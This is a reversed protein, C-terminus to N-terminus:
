GIKAHDLRSFPDHVPRQDLVPINMPVWGKGPLYQIANRGKHVAVVTGLGPAARGIVECLHTDDDIWDAPLARIANLLLASM